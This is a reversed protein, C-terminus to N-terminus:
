RNEKAEKRKKEREALHSKESMLVQVILKKSCEYRMRDRGYSSNSSSSSGIRKNASGM